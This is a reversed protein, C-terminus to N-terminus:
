YNCGSSTAPLIRILKALVQGSSDPEGIVVIKDDVKLSSLKINNKQCVIITKDNVSVTKETNNEDIDKVTLINNDIKIIQGYCGNANSFQKDMGMFDGFFGGQPGGFNRHYEDAWKFSFDARKAGIFVGLCFVLMLIVLVAIGIIIGKFFKSQFFDKM